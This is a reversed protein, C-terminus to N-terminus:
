LLRGAQRCAGTNLTANSRLIPAACRLGDIGLRCLRGSAPASVLRTGPVTHSTVAQRGEGMM